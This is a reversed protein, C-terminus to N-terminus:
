SREERTPLSPAPPRPPEEAARAARSRRQFAGIAAGARRPAPRLLPNEDWSPPKPATTRAAPGVRLEDVLSAQRVRRPLPPEAGEAAADPGPLAPRVPPLPAAPPQPAQPHDTVAAHDSAGYSQRDADTGAPYPRPYSPGPAPYPDEAAPYVHGPVPYQGAATMYPQEQGVYAGESAPYAGDPGAYPRVAAPYALDGGAYPGEPGPYSTDGTTHPLDTGPHATDGTTYPLDPHATGGAVYPLDTGPHTTDGTTYPRADPFASEGEAYPAADAYATGIGGYPQEADAYRTDSTAYASGAGPYPTDATGYPQGTPPFPQGPVTYPEEAAAYPQDQRPYPDKARDETGYPDPQEAPDQGAARGSRATHDALATVGALAKGQVRTPLAGAAAPAAEPPRQAAAPAPASPVGVPRSGPEAVTLEDPVLVVVRTGGFASPRFEVRLGHQDALRAIVYLGLRIDESHALVDMRPPRSMLENAEALQTEDMGLGRDEVEIALGRSVKAARVEVPSPPRSFSLANEILEALVHSVPGVARESLWPSGDLDLVVRRYDQVEGQASRMVDLLPVPKRWRRHPSGGALIVLNEEYRRLRATLHDLDFLGDLVEPDEHKRELEDLKKLQQGILQQTRRAIRQLLREFGRHQDAQRVAAQLASTRAQNLASGLRTLEDGGEAPTEIARAEAEVDIKEGQALREVVEPLARELEEAREQLGGIRLRLNRTLRWTTLIVAIVALLGIVTTLVMKLLLSLISSKGNEVVVATRKEMLEVLQPTVDDMAQRWTKEDAKLAVFGASDPSAPRLVQEEVKTKGAWAPGDIIEQWEAREDEPLYPLVKNGAQFSQASVSERVQQLDEASLKGAPWGRALIADSRSIMEKTWFLDVLTQSLTTVRGNDVHSLAAFLKLDVAILDTYYGYVVKQQEDDGEDVLARQASLQNIAERARGVADRVEEPADDANVDSLSQFSEIADDTLTRQQKLATDSGGPRALAEASLRREEQLNYYVINSPQGAQEALLGQAAQRQFDLLTQGSTVAWLAALAVGPVIALVLLATRLSM